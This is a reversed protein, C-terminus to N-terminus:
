QFSEVDVDDRAVGDASSTGGDTVNTAAVDRLESSCVSADSQLSASWDDRVDVTVVHGASTPAVGDRRRHAAIKQGDRVKAARQGSPQREQDADPGRSAKGSSHGGRPVRRALKVDVDVNTVAIVLADVSVHRADDRQREDHQVADHLWLRPSGSAEARSHVNCDAIVAVATAVRDIFFIDPPEPEFGTWRFRFTATPPRLNPRVPQLM